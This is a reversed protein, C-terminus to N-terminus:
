VHSYVFLIVNRRQKRKSKQTFYQRVSLSNSVPQKQESGPESMESATRVYAPPKVKRHRLKQM